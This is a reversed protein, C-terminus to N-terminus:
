TKLKAAFEHLVAELNELSFCRYEVQYDTAKLKELLSASKMILKTESYRKAQRKVEAILIKKNLDNIAIIDIENEGKRDWYSGIQNFQKSEILIARFLHELQKGSYIAFDRQILQHIYDYNEIEIASQNSYIFRFWFSLFPDAIEYRIDRANVKATIPKVRRIIEFEKELKELNGGAGTELYSEIQPRSTHGIAIAGLVDFYARHESGFDEVLRHLGEKILPSSDAILEKFPDQKTQSLWELYKPIGGSLCWWTLMSEASFRQQDKMMSYLYSPQLPNIKFFHDDRNLLPEKAGKFLKVMLSFLSGCCVFHLMSGQKHTDWLNQLDSYLSSNIRQIDQFEDVVLTLPTQKSYNLLYDFLEKLSNPQFFKAGLEAEIIAKFESLLANESKRSVFLYLYKHEIHTFAEHLLRTKGVRRRGVVVSLQGKTQPLNSSIGRLTKLHQERNYFKEM